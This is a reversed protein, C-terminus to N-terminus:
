RGAPRARRAIENAVRWIRDQGWCAFPQSDEGGSVQFSPVGWLGATLMRELNGELLSEWDAERAAERLAHWDLGAAQAVQRRGSESTIDVGDAWAASLYAGVYDMGKNLADAGPFLAFAHRVPDGFPDVIRGFPVGHARAERGADLIIYRQKMRPAPIGRMMMPMVPRLALTVGSREVLDLVRRHGVATYPSRLSPFYELVVDAAGLGATEAPIPEPVCLATTPEAFREEILRRELLRLRDVGWFWEGEFYFMGGLYHGLRARLRNGRLVAARGPGASGTAPALDGQWLAKGVAVATTAFDSHDLHDALADNAAAAQTATPMRDPGAPQPFDTQYDAAVSAADRLAWRDFHRESGRYEAAPAAVLHPQFSLRYRSRLADLQQVALHSYPDDVQHFYHVVPRERRLRRRVRSATRLLELHRESSLRSMVTSRIRTKLHM